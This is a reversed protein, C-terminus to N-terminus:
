RLASGGGGGSYLGADTLLLQAEQASSLRQGRALATVAWPEEQDQDWAYMKGSRERADHADVRRGGNRATAATAPATAVPALAEAPQAAAPASFGLRHDLKIKSVQSDVKKLFLREQAAMKKQAAPQTWVGTVGRATASLAPMSPLAIPQMEPTMDGLSQTRTVDADTGGAAPSSSALSTSGAAGQAARLARSVLANTGQLGSSLLNSELQIKQTLQQAKSSQILSHKKMEIVKRMWGEDSAAHAVEAQGGLAAKGALQEARSLSGFDVALETRSEAGGAARQYCVSAVILMAAAAAAASRRLM